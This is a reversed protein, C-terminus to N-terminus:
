TAARRWSQQPSHHGILPQASRIRRVLVPCASVMQCGAMGEAVVVPGSVKKIYSRARSPLVGGPGAAVPQMAPSTGVPGGPRAGWVGWGWMGRLFSLSTTGGGRGSPRSAGM